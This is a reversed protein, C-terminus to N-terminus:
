FHAKRWLPTVKELDWSGFTSPVHHTKPMKVEFRAERWLPTCKKFTAVELLAGFMTHKTCKSKWAHVKEVDCNGFTSRVQPAKLKKVESHSERWLPMCNNVEWGALHSRVRRKLSGVKWVEPDVFWSFFVTFRSKEVKECVQMKKRRVRERRKGSEEWRQKKM